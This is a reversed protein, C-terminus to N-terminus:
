LIKEEGELLEQLKRAGMGRLRSVLSVKFDVKLLLNVGM